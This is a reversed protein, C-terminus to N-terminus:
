REREREKCVVFVFLFLFLTFVCVFACIQAREREGRSKKRGRTERKVIERGVYIERLRPRERERNYTEKKRMESERPERRKPGFLFDVCTIM